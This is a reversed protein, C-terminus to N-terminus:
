SVGQRWTSAMSLSATARVPPQQVLGLGEHQLLREAVEGDGVLDVGVAVFALVM